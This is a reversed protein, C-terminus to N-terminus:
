NGISIIEEIFTILKLLTKHYIMIYVSTTPKSEPKDKFKFIDMYFGCHYKSNMNNPDYILIEYDLFKFIATLEKIEYFYINKTNVLSTYKKELKKAISRIEPPYFYRYIKGSKMNGEIVEPSEASLDQLDAWFDPTIIWIEESRREIELIEQPTKLLRDWDPQYCYSGDYNINFKRFCTLEPDIEIRSNNINLNKTATIVSLNNNIEKKDIINLQKKINKFKDIEERIYNFNINNNESLEFLINELINNSYNIDILYEPLNIQNNLGILSQIIYSKIEILDEKILINKFDLAISSGNIISKNLFLLSDLLLELQNELFFLKKEFFNKISSTKIFDNYQKNLNQVEDTIDIYEKLVFKEGKNELNFLNISKRYIDKSEKFRSLKYLRYTLYILAIYDNSSIKKVIVDKNFEPVGKRGFNFFKRDSELFASIKPPNYGFSIQFSRDVKNIFTGKKRSPYKNSGNDVDQELFDEIFSISLNQPFSCFFCYLFKKIDNENNGKFYLNNVKLDGKNNIEIIYLNKDLEIIVYFIDFNYWYKLDKNLLLELSFYAKKDLQLKINTSM